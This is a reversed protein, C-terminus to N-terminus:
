LQHGIMLLSIEKQVPPFLFRTIFRGQIRFPDQTLQTKKNDSGFLIIQNRMEILDIEVIVSNKKDVMDLMHLCHMDQLLLFELLVCVFENIIQNCDLVCLEKIESIGPARERIPGGILLLRTRVLQLRIWGQLINM